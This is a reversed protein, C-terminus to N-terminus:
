VTRRGTRGRDRLRGHVLVFTQESGARAAECAVATRRLMAGLLAGLLPLARRLFAVPAAATRESLLPSIGVALILAANTSALLRFDVLVDHDLAAQALELAPM